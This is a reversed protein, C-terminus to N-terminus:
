EPKFPSTETFFGDGNEPLSSIAEDTSIHVFRKVGCERSADLLVQTGIINQKCFSRRM